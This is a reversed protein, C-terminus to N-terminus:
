EIPKFEMFSSAVYHKKKNHSNKLRFILIVMAVIKAAYVSPLFDPLFIINHGLALSHLTHYRSQMCPEFLYTHMLKSISLKIWGGNYWRAVWRM